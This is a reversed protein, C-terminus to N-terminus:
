ERKWPPLLDDNTQVVDIVPIRLVTGAPLDIDLPVEKNEIQLIPTYFPSGYVEQSVNDWRQGPKTTYSIYAM